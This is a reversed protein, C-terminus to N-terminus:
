EPAPSSKRDGRVATSKAPKKPSHSVLNLRQSVTFRSRGRESGNDRAALIGNGPKQAVGKSLSVTRPCWLRRVRTNKECRVEIVGENELERLRRGVNQPTYKTAAAVIRQLDGSALWSYSHHKKLYAALREKLSALTM